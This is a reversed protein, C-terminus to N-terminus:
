TTCALCQRGPDRGGPVNDEDEAVVLVVPDPGAKSGREMMDVRHSFRRSAGHLNVILGGDADVSATALADCRGLCTKASYVNIAEGVHAFDECRLTL